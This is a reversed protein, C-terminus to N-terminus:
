NGVTVRVKGVYNSPRPLVKHTNSGDWGNSVNSLHVETEDSDSEAGWPQIAVAPVETPTEFDGILNTIRSKGGRVLVQGVAVSSPRVFVDRVVGGGVLDLGCRSGVLYGGDITLGFGGGFFSTDTLYETWLDRVTMKYTVALGTCNIGRAGNVIRLSDFMVPGMAAGVYIASGQGGEIKFDRLIVDQASDPVGQSSHVALCIGDGGWGVLPLSPAGTYSVPRPTGPNLEGFTQAGNSLKVKWVTMDPKVGEAGWYGGGNARLWGVTLPWMSNDMLRAGDPWAGGPAWYPDIWQSMVVEAAGNLTLKVQKAALDIKVVADITETLPDFPVRFMRVANDSLRVGVHIYNGWGAVLLFPSPAPRYGERNNQIGCLPTGSGNPNTWSAAHRTAHFKIEFTSAISSWKGGPGLDASCGCVLLHTDAKTRFGGEVYHTDDVLDRRWGVVFATKSGGANLRGPGIVRVPKFENGAVFVPVTLSCANDPLRVIGTTDIQQQIEDSTM